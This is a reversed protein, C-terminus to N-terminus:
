KVSYVTGCCLHRGYLPMEHDGLGHSYDLLDRCDWSRWRCSMSVVGSEGDGLGFREDFGFALCCGGVIADAGVGLFRDGDVGGGKEFLGATGRRLALSAGEGGGGRGFGGAGPGFVAARGKGDGAGRAGDGM